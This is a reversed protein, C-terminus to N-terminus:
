CVLKQMALNCNLALGILAWCQKFAQNITDEFLEVHIIYNCTSSLEDGDKFYYDMNGLSRIRALTFKM